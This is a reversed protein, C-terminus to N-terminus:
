SSLCEHAANEYRTINFRTSGPELRFEYLFQVVLQPSVIIFFCCISAHASRTTSWTLRCCAWSSEKTSSFVSHGASMCLAALCIAPCAFEACPSGTSHSIPTFSFVPGTIQEGTFKASQSEDRLASNESNAGVIVSTFTGTSLTTTVAKSM